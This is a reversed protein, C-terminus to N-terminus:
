REFDHYDYLRNTVTCTDDAHRESSTPEDGALGEKFKDIVTM